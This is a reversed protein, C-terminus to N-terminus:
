EDRAPTFRTARRGNKDLKWTFRGWAGEIGDHDGVRAMLEADLRKVTAEAEARLRAADARDSAIAEVEEDDVELLVRAVNAPYRHLLYDRTAPTHDLAPPTGDKVMQWFRRAGDILLEALEADYAVRWAHPPRGGVCAVVDAERAGHCAMGITVQARVYNPIGDQSSVDWHRYLAPASVNKVEVIRSAGVVSADLSAWLWPELPHPVQGGPLVEVSQARAYWGLIVPEMVHGWELHAERDPDMESADDASVIGTKENFLRFPGAGVWPALGNAEVVDTAGMGERRHALEEASLRPM